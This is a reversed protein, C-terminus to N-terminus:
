MVESPQAVNTRSCSPVTRAEVLVSTLAAALTTWPRSLMEAVEARTDALVAGDLRAHECSNSAQMRAESFAAMTTETLVLGLCAVEDAHGCATAPPAASSM